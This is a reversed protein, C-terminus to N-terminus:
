VIKVTIHQRAHANDADSGGSFEDVFLLTVSTTVKVILNKVASDRAPLGAWQCPLRLTFVTHLIYAKDASGRAYTM